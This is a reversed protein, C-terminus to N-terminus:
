ARWAAGAVREYERIADVVGAGVEAPSVGAAVSVNLNIVSGGRGGGGGGSAGLGGTTHAGLGSFARTTAGRMSQAGKAYESMAEQGAYYSVRHPSGFPNLADVIDGALDKLHDLAKSFMSAMGDIFDGIVERGKRYLSSGLDGLAGLVRGPLELWWTILAAGVAVARNVADSFVGGIDGALGSLFGVIRGPLASFFGSIADWNDVILKAAIAFPGLLIALLLPWNDSIWQWVGHIIDLVFGWATAAAEKITDWNKVVLVGVAILAAIGAVILGIPNANMAANLLWQAAAWAKSAAEAIKTRAAWLEVGLSYAKLAVVVAGIAAALPVLWDANEKVFKSLSKVLPLVASLAPMLAGGLAAQADQWGATMSRQQNAAGDATRAFDGTAKGAGELMLTYTAHAKEQATLEKTNAKGTEALAKTEVAAANITPIFKQLSDYEGRFAAQQAELVATPDANHFSALDATLTLMSKSMDASAGTTFGLQNFMNGYAGAADLAAQQSLGLNTAADATFKKITGAAKGYVVDVKNGSEALDSAAGIADKALNAAGFAGFATIATKAFNKVTSGMKNTAGELADTDALFRVVVDTANAM